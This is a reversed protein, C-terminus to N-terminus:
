GFIVTYDDDHRIFLLELSVDAFFFENNNNNKNPITQARHSHTPATHTHMLFWQRRFIAHHQHTTQQDSTVAAEARHHHRETKNKEKKWAVSIWQPSNAFDLQTSFMDTPWWWSVSYPTHVSNARGSPYKSIDAAVLSHHTASTSPVFFRSVSPFACCVLVVGFLLFELLANTFPDLFFLFLLSSFLISTSTHTCTTDADTYTHIHANTIRLFHHIAWFLVSNFPFFLIGITRVAFATYMWMIYYLYEIFAIYVTLPFESVCLCQRRMACWVSAYVIKQTGITHIPSNLARAHEQKQLVNPQAVM